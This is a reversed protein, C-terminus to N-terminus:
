VDDKILEDYLTWVIWDLHLIPINLKKALDTYFLKIDIYKEKHKEFLAELRSDIPIFIENPYEVFSYINRAWYWFMKIAFVITKADIKQKMNKALINRLETMNNYFYESKWYFDNEIFNRLKEVRKKKTDVFRKNNKSNSFFTALEDILNLHTLKIESFYESFEEWYNEWKWSLQYCIISNAIILSLYLEKDSINEGLKKLAIFQRDAEELKIADKLNYESLKNYLEKM